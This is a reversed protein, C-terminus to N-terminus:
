PKKANGQEDKLSFVGADKGSVALVAKAKGASDNCVLGAPVTTLSLRNTGGADKFVLTPNGDEGGLGLTMRLKGDAELLSLKPAGDAEVTLSARVKQEGDLLSLAASGKDTVSLLARLKGQSVLRLSEATVDREGGGQGMCVLAGGGLLLGLAGRRWRGASRRLHGCERELADLRSILPDLERTM